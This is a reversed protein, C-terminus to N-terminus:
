GTELPEFGGVDASQDLRCKQGPQYVNRESTNDDYQDDNEHRIRYDRKNSEM